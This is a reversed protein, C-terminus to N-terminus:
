TEIKDLMSKIVVRDTLPEETSPKNSSVVLEGRDTNLLDGEKEDISDYSM